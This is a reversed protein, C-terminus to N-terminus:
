ELKELALAESMKSKPITITITLFGEFSSHELVLGAARSLHSTENSDRGIDVLREKDVLFRRLKVKKEPSFSFDCIVSDFQEATLKKLKPSIKQVAARITRESVDFHEAADKQTYGDVLCYGARSSEKESLNYKKALKRFVSDQIKIIKM